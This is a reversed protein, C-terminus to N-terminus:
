APRPSNFASKEKDYRLNVIKQRLERNEPTDPPLEGKATWYEPTERSATTPARKSGSPIAEKTTRAEQREKLEAQFWKTGLISAQPKGTDKITERLFEVDEDHEIKTVDSKTNHFALQGFDVDNSPKPTAEPEKKLEPEKKELKAWKGEKFEFGEAKKARAFLQRNLEVLRKNQDTFENFKGKRADDDLEDFDAEIVKEENLSDLNELENAM